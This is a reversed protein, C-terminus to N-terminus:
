FCTLVTSCTPPMELSSNAVSFLDSCRRSRKQVSWIRYRSQSKRLTKSRRPNRNADLFRTLCSEESRRGLRGRSFVPSWRRLIFRCPLLGQEFRMPGPSGPGTRKANQTLMQQPKAHQEKRRRSRAYHHAAIPEPRGCKELGLGLGFQRNRRSIPRDRPNKSSSGRSKGSQKRRMSGDPVGRM